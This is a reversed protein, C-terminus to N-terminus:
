GLNGDSDLVFRSSSASPLTGGTSEVPEPARPSELTRPEGPALAGKDDFALLGEDVLRDVVRRARAEDDPWGAVIAIAGSPIPAVLSARVLKGRGERDSGAFRQVRQSSGVSRRNYRIPDHGQVAEARWRCWPSSEVSVSAAPRHGKSRELPRPPELPCGVCDTVPGRCRLAGLDMLALSWWRPGDDPVLLDALRQLASPSLSRGSVARLLVRSINTDVPAARQGFGFAQVARATYPGVGPLALLDGLDRPVSGGHRQEILMATQHLAVARRNYGLGSWARLVAARGASAMAAPSSFRELFAPYREAIRSAQTQALMVEAVLVAWPDSTSRWPLLHRAACEGGPAEFWSRLRDARMAQVTASGASQALDDDSM